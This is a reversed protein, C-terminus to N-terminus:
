LLLDLINKVVLDFKGSLRQRNYTQSTAADVSIFVKTIGSELMSVRRKANLLTGNTVMYVNLMGATKAYAICRELDARLMPENIYNLKLGRVGLAVAEDILAKYREIPLLTHPRKEGYGHLCFPCKMNCGGNLEVDLQVPNKLKELQGAKKYNNRFLEWDHSDIGEPCEELLNRNHIEHFLNM